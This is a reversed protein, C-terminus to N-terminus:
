PLDSPAPVELPVGPTPELVQADPLEKSLLEQMLLWNFEWNDRVNAPYVYHMAILLVCYILFYSLFQQLLWIQSQIKKNLLILASKLCEWGIM